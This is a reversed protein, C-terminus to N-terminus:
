DVRAGILVREAHRQVLREGTLQRSRALHSAHRPRHAVDQGAPGGALTVLAVRRDLEQEGLQAARTAAYAAAHVRPHLSHPMISSRGVSTLRRPSASSASGTASTAASVAAHATTAITAAIYASANTAIAFRRVNTSPAPM